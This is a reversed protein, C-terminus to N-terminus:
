QFELFGATQTGTVVIGYLASTQPIGITSGAALPFGTSTTVSADGLFITAAGSNTVLLAARSTNAAIIQTATNAVSQQGYSHLAVAINSTKLANNSDVPVAQLKGNIDKGGIQVADAPVTTNTPGEAATQVQTVESSSGPYVVIGVQGATPASTVIDVTNGLPDTLVAPHPDAKVISM